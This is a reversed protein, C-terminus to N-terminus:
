KIKSRTRYARSLALIDNLRVASCQFHACYLFYVLLILFLPVSVSCDCSISYVNIHIAIVFHINAPTWPSFHQELKSWVFISQIATLSNIPLPSNFHLVIAWVLCNLHQSFLCYIYHRFYLKCCWIVGLKNFITFIVSVNQATKFPGYYYFVPSKQKIAPLDPSKEKEM